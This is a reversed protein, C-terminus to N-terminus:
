RSFVQFEGRIEQRCKGLFDELAIESNTGISGAARRLLM